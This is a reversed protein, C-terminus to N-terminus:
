NADCPDAPGARWEIRDSNVRGNARYWHCFGDAQLKVRLDVINEDAFIVIMQFTPDALDPQQQSAAAMVAEYPSTYSNDATAIEPLATTPPVPQPAPQFEDAMGVRGVPAALWGVAFATVVLLVAGAALWMRSERRQSPGRLPQAPPWDMDTAPVAEIMWQYTGRFAHRTRDDSHDTPM